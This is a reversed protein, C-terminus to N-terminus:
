DWKIYNVAHIWGCQLDNKSLKFTPRDNVPEAPVFLDFDKGDVSKKVNDFFKSDNNSEQILFYGDEVGIVSIAHNYGALSIVMACNGEEVMKYLKEEKEIDDVIYCGIGHQNYEKVQSRSGFVTSKAGTILEYFRFGANGEDMDLFLKDSNKKFLEPDQKVENFYKEVAIIYASIDGEGSAVTDQSQAIEDSTIYYIGGHLGLDEAEQIHIAIVGTSEDRYINNNVLNKGKETSLLSNIGSHIWCNENRQTSVKDFKGNGIDIDGYDNSLPKINNSEIYNAVARKLVNNDYPNNIRDSLIEAQKDLLKQAKYGEM